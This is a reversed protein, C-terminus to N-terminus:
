LVQSYEFVHLAFFSGARLGVDFDLLVQNSHLSVAKITTQEM